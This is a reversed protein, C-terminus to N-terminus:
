NSSRGSSRARGSNKALEEVDDDTLGSLKAAVTYVRSLASASKLGLLPIDKEDFLAQNQEDVITLAVLRARVNETNRVVNNKADRTVISTEFADRERASLGRVRVYAETGDDSWEPVYVEAFQVDNKALIEAKGLVRRPKAAQGEAGMASTTGSDM